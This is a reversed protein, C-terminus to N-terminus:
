PGDKRMAEEVASLFTDGEGWLFFWPGVHRLVTSGDESYETVSPGVPYLERGDATGIYDIVDVLHDREAILNALEVLEGSSFAKANEVGIRELLERAKQEATM